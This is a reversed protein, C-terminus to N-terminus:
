DLPAGETTRQAGYGFHPAGRPVQKLHERVLVHLDVAPTLFNRFYSLPGPQESPTEVEVLYLRIYWVTSIHAVARLIRTGDRGFISQEAVSLTYFGISVPLSYSEM